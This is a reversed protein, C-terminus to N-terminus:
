KEREGEMEKKRVCVNLYQRFHKCPLYHLHLSYYFRECNSKNKHMAYDYCLVSIEFNRLNINCKVLNWKQRRQFSIFFLICDFCGEICNNLVKKSFKIIIIAKREKICSISSNKISDSMKFKGGAFCKVSKNVSKNM